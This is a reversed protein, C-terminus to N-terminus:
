LNLWLSRYGGDAWRQRSDGDGLERHSNPPFSINCFVCLCVCRITIVALQSKKEDTEPMVRMEKMITEYADNEEELCSKDGKDRM